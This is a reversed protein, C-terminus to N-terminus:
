FIKLQRVTLEYTTKKRLKLDSKEMKRGERKQLEGGLSRM